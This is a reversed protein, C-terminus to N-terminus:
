NKKAAKAQRVRLHQLNNLMGQCHEVTLRINKIAISETANWGDDFSGEAQILLKSADILKRFAIDEYEQATKM